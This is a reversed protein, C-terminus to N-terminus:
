RRASDKASRLRHSILMPTAEGAPFFIRQAAHHAAHAARRGFHASRTACTDLTDLMVIVWPLRYPQSM